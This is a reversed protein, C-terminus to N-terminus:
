GAVVLVYSPSSFGGSFEKTVVMDNAYAQFTGDNLYLNYENEQREIVAEKGALGLAWATTLVDCKGTVELLGGPMSVVKTVFYKRNFDAIDMYNCSAFAAADGSVIVTPNSLDVDGKLECSKAAILTLDKVPKEAQSLNKYFNIAVSM